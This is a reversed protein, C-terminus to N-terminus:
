AQNSPPYIGTISQLIGPTTSQKNDKEEKKRSITNPPRIQSKGKQMAIANPTQYSLDM